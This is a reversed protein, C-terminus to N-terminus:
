YNGQNLEQLQTAADKPPPWPVPEIDRVRIFPVYAPNGEANKYEYVGRDQNFKPKGKATIQNGNNLTILYRNTCGAALSLLLLLAVARAAAKRSDWITNNDM